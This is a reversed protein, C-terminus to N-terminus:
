RGSPDIVGIPIRHMAIEAIRAALRRNGAENLHTVDIFYPEASQDFVDSSNHVPLGAREATRYM